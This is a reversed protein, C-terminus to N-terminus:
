ESWDLPYTAIELMRGPQGSESRLGVAGARALKRDCARLNAAEFSQIFGSRRPSGFRARATSLM